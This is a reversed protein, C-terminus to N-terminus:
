IELSPNYLNLFKCFHSYSKLNNEIFLSKSSNEKTRSLVVALLSFRLVEVDAKHKINLNDFKNLYIHLLSHDFVSDVHNYCISCIDYFRYKTFMSSALDIFYIKSERLIINNIDYENKQAFEQRHLDKHIFRIQGNTLFSFKIIQFLLSLGLKYSIYKSIYSFVGRMIMFSPSTMLDLSRIIFNRRNKFKVKSFSHIAPLLITACEKRTLRNKGDIYSTLIYSKDCAIIEPLDFYNTVNSKIKRNTSCEKLLYASLVNFFKLFKIFKSYGIRNEDITKLIFKESYINQVVSVNSKIYYQHSYEENQFENM